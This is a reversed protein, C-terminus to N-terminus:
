IEVVLEDYAFSINEPLDRSHADHDVDHTLHIFYTRGAEAERAIRISEPITLHTTHEEFRLADLVLIPIRRIASRAEAPVDKCDTFYALQAKGNRRFVYGYSEFRGHPLAFPEIEFPGLAFRSKVERLDLRTYPLGRGNDEVTYSFVTRIRELTDRPAYAPLPQKQIWNFRRLDDIGLLHDSHSHTFLVADIKKLGARLSQSRLDPSADILVTFGDEEVVASTRFRKNRPNESRCVQCDCGIMPVGTSTGTGLFTLKV